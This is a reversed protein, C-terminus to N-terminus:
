EGLADASATNSPSATCSHSPELREHSALLHLDDTTLALDTAAISAALEANNEPGITTLVRPQHLTWALAVTTPACGLQRAMQVCRSRAARNAQTDFVDNSLGGDGAFWGRAQAAWALLWTERQRLCERIAGSAHLTGPWIPLKPLALSHQYSAVPTTGAAHALDIFEALRAPKWNAVGFAHIRGASVEAQLADVLTRVDIRPDDRHLLAVDIYDTRLRRLSCVIEEHLVQPDVRSTGDASPHCFKDVVAVTARKSGTTLWRGLVEEAYGGAYSHATEVVLGGLDVFQDLRQHSTTTPEEGFRGGLVVRARPAGNGSIATRWPDTSLSM